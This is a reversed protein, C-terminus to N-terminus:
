LTTTVKVVVAVTKGTQLKKVGPHELNRLVSNIVGEHCTLSLFKDKSSAQSFLQELGTRTRIDMEDPTERHDAKWLADPESYNEEYKWAVTHGSKTKFNQYEAVAESHNVRKDCTHSGLNERLNEIVNNTVITSDTVLEPYKTFVHNWSFAFTELCRRMPSNFFIHPLFGLQDVIPVLVTRGTESVQQKGLDTLRSDLWSGGEDGELLSWYDDWLKVGYKEMSYNHYGQGHRALLLLKYQTNETDQPISDYLIKWDDHNVLVNHDVLTSDLAPSNEKEFSSFYGPLAVFEM